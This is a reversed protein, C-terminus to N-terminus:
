VDIECRTEAVDIVYFHTHREISYSTTRSIDALVSDLMDRLM